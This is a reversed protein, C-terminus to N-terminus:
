ARLDLGERAQAVVGDIDIHAARSPERGQLPKTLLLLFEINGKAGKVPSFSLDTVSFGAEAAYGFVQEIVSRHVAPDRIIGNKGVQQRGAEFQPKILAVMNADEKLLACANPMIHRLSIFSVDTCAFDLTEGIMDPTTYRFNQKEMNIVRPDCRLKYDLQGYGVDLAYVKEAGKQLLCDTFGGTSAGIDICHFGTPDISFVQLAKALKLGGRSVFPCDSGKVTIVADDSIGTGAKDSLQGDVFVLGAM